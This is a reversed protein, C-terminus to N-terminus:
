QNLYLIRKTVVTDGSKFTIFYLGPKDLVVGDIDIENMGKSVKQTQHFVKNGFADVIQWEVNGNVPMELAFSTRNSFPNPSSNSVKFHESVPISHYNLGITKTMNNQYIEAKIRTSILSVIDESIEPLSLFEVPVSFLLEGKNIQVPDLSNYSITLHNERQYYFESSLDLVGQILKNVAMKDNFELEIQFGELELDEVASFSILHADQDIKEIKYEWNIVSRTEASRLGSLDTSGNVDGTKIAIFELANFSNGLEIKEDFDYPFAPDAFEHESHVFTWPKNDPFEDYYGLILRRAHVIDYMSVGASNNIDAAIIQYPSDFFEAGLIHRQIEIIDQTNVGNLPEGDRQAEISADQYWHTEFAFLGEEDSLGELITNDPLHMAVEVDSVAEGEETRVRGLISTVNNCHGNDYVTLFTSCFDQNGSEDTVWLTLFNFGLSMCDFSKSTEIVDQSFSFQLDEMKTCDDFSGINFDTAWLTVADGNEAVVTTLGLHCYPTPAKNDEESITILCSQTTNNGCGDNVSWIIRHDGLPFSNKNISSANITSGAGSGDIVGDNNEDWKWSWGFSSEESCNDTASATIPGSFDTTCDVLFEQTCELEPAEEDFIDYEAFFEFYGNDSHFPDIQGTVPNVFNERFVCFDIVEWHSLIKKCVGDAFLFTDLEQSIGISTCLQNNDILPSNINVPGCDTIQIAPIDDDPDNQNDNVSCWPLAGYTIREPSGVPFSIDDCSLKNEANRVIFVEQLCGNSQGSDTQVLWTVYLTSTACQQIDSQVSYTLNASCGATFSPKGLTNKVTNPLNEYLVGANYIITYYDDLCDLEVDSPCNISPTLKDEVTVTIWSTNSNGSHDLVRFEVIVPSYAVDECCFEVGYGWNTSLNCPNPDIRRVEFNVPGCQDHSGEDFALSHIYGYGNSSLSVNFSNDVVAVPPVLDEVHLNINFNSLNNCDDLVQITVNHYGKSLSTGLPPIFQMELDDDCNDTFSLDFDNDNLIYYCNNSGTSVTVSSSGSLEPAETDLIKIIQDHFNTEGACWDVVIWQRIIKYSGSNYGCLPLVDDEYTIGINGCDNSEPYGTLDPSPNGYQDEPFSEDCSIPDPNNNLGDWNLPFIVSLSFSASGAQSFSLLFAFLILLRSIRM